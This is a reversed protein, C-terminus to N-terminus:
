ARLGDGTLGEPKRARGNHAISHVHRHARVQQQRLIEDLRQIADRARSAPTPVDRLGNAISETPVLAEGCRARRRTRPAVM